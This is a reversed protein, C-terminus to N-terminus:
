RKMIKREASCRYLIDIEEDENRLQVDSVLTILRRQQEFTRVLMNFANSVLDPNDYLNIDLLISVFNKNVKIMDLNKDEYAERIWRVGEHCLVENEPMNKLETMASPDTSLSAKYLQNVYDVQSTEMQELYDHFNVLFLTLRKDDQVDM